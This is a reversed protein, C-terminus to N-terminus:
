KKNFKYMFRLAFYNNFRDKIIESFKEQNKSLQPLDNYDFWNLSYLEKNLKYNINKYYDWNIFFLGINKRKNVQYFMDKEIHSKNIKISIEENVERIVCDIKTENEEIKGKIFDFETRNKSVKSLLIKVNGNEFKYPIIGYSYEKM